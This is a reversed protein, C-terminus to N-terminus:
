YITVYVYLLYVKKNQNITVKVLTSGKKKGTYKGKNNVTLVSKKIPTFKVKSSKELDYVQIKSSKKLLRKKALLVTPTKIVKSNFKTLEKANKFKKKVRVDIVLRNTYKGKIATFTLTARGPKKASIVGKKNVTAVKSNTSTCVITAGSCKILKLKAKTKKQMFKIVKFGPVKYSKAMKLLQEYTYKSGGAKLFTANLAKKYAMKWTASSDKVLGYYHGNFYKLDIEQGDGTAEAKEPRIIQGAFLSMIMSVVLAFSM